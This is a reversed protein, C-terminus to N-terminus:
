MVVEQQTLANLVVGIRPLGWTLLRAIAPALSAGRLARGISAESVACAFAVCRRGHADVAARLAEQTEPALTQLAKARRTNPPKM